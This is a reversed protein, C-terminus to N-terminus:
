DNHVMQFLDNTINLVEETSATTEEIGAAQQEVNELTSQSIEITKKLSDQIENTLKEINVATEKSNQSMNRIESAVVSFVRGAEGVRAAEISANLGILKTQDAIAKVSSLIKIIQESINSINVIENNLMEQNESVSVSSAALEEM